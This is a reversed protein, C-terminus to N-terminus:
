FEVEKKGKKNLYDNDDNGISFKYRGYMYSIVLKKIDLDM